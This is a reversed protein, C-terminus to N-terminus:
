MLITRIVTNIGFGRDKMMKMLMFLLTKVVITIPLSTTNACLDLSLISVWSIVPLHELKSGASIKPVSKHVHSVKLFYESYNDSSVPVSPLSTCIGM